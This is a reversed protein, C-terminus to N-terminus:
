KRYVYLFSIIFSQLFSLILKDCSVRMFSLPAKMSRQSGHLVNSSFYVIRVCFPKNLNYIAVVYQFNSCLRLKKEKSQYWLTKARPCSSQRSSKLDDQSPTPSLDLTPKGQHSLWLSDSQWHLLCLNLGQTLFIGQPLFHCDVGTNIGSCEM